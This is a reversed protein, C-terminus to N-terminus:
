VVTVPVRKPRQPAGTVFSLVVVISYISFFVNAPYDLVALISDVASPNLDQAVEVLTKILSHAVLFTVVASVDALYLLHIHRICSQSDNISRALDRCM